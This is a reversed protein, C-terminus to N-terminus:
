YRAYVRAAGSGKFALVDYPERDAGEMGPSGGPMGPAALGLVDPKEALLRQVSDAPVHGEIVYGSVMATHCSIMADPVGASKKIPDVDDVNRVTVDFGNARMHGVWGKCCGCSPSKYVLVTAQAANGGFLGLGWAAGAAGVGALGLGALVHRRGLKRAGGEDQPLDSNKEDM